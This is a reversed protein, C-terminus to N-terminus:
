NNEVNKEHSIFLDKIFPLMSEAAIQHAKENPHQDYSSVWLNPGYHGMFSPLLNHLPFGNLLAFEELHKSIEM